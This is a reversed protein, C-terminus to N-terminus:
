IIKGEDLKYTHAEETVWFALHISNIMAIFTLCFMWSKRGSCLHSSFLIETRCSINISQIFYLITLFSNNGYFLIEPIMLNRFWQLIYFLHFAVKFTHETFMLFFWIKTIYFDDFYTKTLLCKRFTLIFVAIRSEIALNRAKQIHLKSRTSPLCFHECSYNHPQSKM